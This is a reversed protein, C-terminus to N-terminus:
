DPHRQLSEAALLVAARVNGDALERQSLETYFEAREAQLDHAVQTGEAAASAIQADFAALTQPIPTLTANAATVQGIANGATVVAVVTLLAALLAAALLVRVLNRRRQDIRKLEDERQESARIYTAHLESPPPNMAHANALWALATQLDSARLLYSDDQGKSQWERARVTLRTHEAVYAPDEQVSKLLGAFSAEFNDADSEPGDCEPNVVKKTISDYECEFGPLKRFFLYNLKSAARENDEALEAWDKGYLAAKIEAVFEGRERVERRVVPIIRKNLGRAFALEENCIKSTLYHPSIVCLFADSEVIGKEIEKWWEASYPIGEWDAWSDFGARELGDFLRRAFVQDRRSYSIFVQSRRMVAM